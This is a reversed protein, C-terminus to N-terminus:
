PNKGYLLEKLSEDNIFEVSEPVPVQYITNSRVPSELVQEESTVKNRRDSDYQEKKSMNTYSEQEEYNNSMIVPINEITHKNCLENNDSLSLQKLNESPSVEPSMVLSFFDTTEITTDVINGTISGLTKSPLEDSNWYDRIRLLSNMETQLLLSESDQIKGCINNTAPTLNTSSCPNSSISRNNDSVLYKVNFFPKKRSSQHIIDNSILNQLWSDDSCTLPKEVSENDTIGETGVKIDSGSNVLQSNKDSLVYPSSSIVCNLPSVINQIKSGLIIAHQKDELKQSVDATNNIVIPKIERSEGCSTSGYNTNVQFSM